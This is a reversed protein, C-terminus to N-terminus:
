IDYVARQAVNRLDDRGLGLDDLERESLVSLQRLTRNYARRKEVRDVIGRLFGAVRHLANAEIAHPATITAM